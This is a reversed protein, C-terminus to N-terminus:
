AAKWMEGPESTRWTCTGVALVFPAKAAPGCIDEWTQAWRYFTARLFPFPGSRMQQHKLELDEPIVRLRRSLWAEYGATAKAFKM